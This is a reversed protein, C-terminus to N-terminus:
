WDSGLPVGSSPVMATTWTAQSIGTNVLRVSGDGLGVMIGGSFLGQPRTFDCAALTPQFQPLTTDQQIASWRHNRHDNGWETEAWRAGSNGDSPLYCAAYIDTFVITNSTGNPFGRPIATPGPNDNVNNSGFVNYNAAYSSLAMNAENGRTGWGSNSVGGVPMSPDGPSQYSKVTSNQYTFSGAPPNGANWNIGVMRSDSFTNKFISGGEIYPLIFFHLSGYKAPLTSTAPPNNAGGVSPDGWPQGSNPNVAAGPYWGQVGPLGGNADNCSHLALSMQKLNNADSIRAAAERVKQVAPLLLGILIAIIAIVVLLEILTFGRHKLWTRLRAM